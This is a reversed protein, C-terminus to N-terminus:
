VGHIVYDRLSDKIGCEIGWMTRGMVVLLSIECSFLKDMRKTTFVSKRFFELYRGVENSFEEENKTALSRTVRRLATSNKSVQGEHPFPLDFCMKGTLISKGIQCYLARMGICSDSEIKLDDAAYTAIRKADDHKGLIMAWYLGDVYQRMWPLWLEWDTKIAFTAPDLSTRWDGFFYDLTEDVLFGAQDRAEAGKGQLYYTLVALQRDVVISQLTRDAWKELSRSKSEAVGELYESVPIQFKYKEFLNM